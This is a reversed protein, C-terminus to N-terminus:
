LDIVIPKHVPRYSDDLIAANVFTTPGLVRVGYGEHIHGFVHLKPQIRHVFSRIAKSGLPEGSELRTGDKNIHVTPYSDLIQYPPAHTVLIDIPGDVVELLRQMARETFNFAWLPLNKVGSFGFVRWDRNDCRFVFNDCTLVQMSGSPWTPNSEWWFDHNGPVFIKIKHPQADMWNIFSQCEGVAGRFTADGAHILVDGDPIELSSLNEDVYHTDSINVVRM